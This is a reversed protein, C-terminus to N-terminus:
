DRRGATNPANVFGNFGDVVEMAERQGDANFLQTGVPSIKMLM